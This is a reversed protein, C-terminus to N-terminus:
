SMHCVKSRYSQRLKSRYSHCVKASIVPVSQESIQVLSQKLAVQQNDVVNHHESQVLDLGNRQEIKHVLEM